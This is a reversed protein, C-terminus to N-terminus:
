GEEDRLLDDITHLLERLHFPKRISFLNRKRLEKLPPNASMFLAPVHEFGETAHLRDYLDLGNMRPLYYDLLFLDPKVNQVMELAERGDIALLARYHASSYMGEQLLVEMILMGLDEDDEVVLITKENQSRGQAMGKVATQTQVHPAISM